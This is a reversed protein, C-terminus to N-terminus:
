GCAVASWALQMVDIISVRTNTVDISYVDFVKSRHVCIVSSSLHQTCVLVCVLFSSRRGACGVGNSSCFTPFLLQLACCRRKSRHVCVVTSSLTQTCVRVCVIFSSSREVYGMSRSNCFTPFLLQPACCRRKCRFCMVLCTCPM